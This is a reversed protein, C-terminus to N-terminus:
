CGKGMDTINEAEAKAETSTRSTAEDQNEKEQDFQGDARLIVHHDQERYAVDGLAFILNEMKVTTESVNNFPSAAEEERDIVFDHTPYDEIPKRVRGAKAIKGQEALHHGYAKTISLDRLDNGLSEPDVRQYVPAMVGKALVSAIRSAIEFSTTQHSGYFVRLMAQEFVKWTEEALCDLATRVVM